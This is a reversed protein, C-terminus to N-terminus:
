SSPSAPIPFSADRRAGRPLRAAGSGAGRVRLVGRGAAFVGDRPATLARTRRRRRAAARARPRRGRGGGSVWDRMLQSGRRVTLIRLRALVQGSAFAEDRARPADGVSAARQAQGAGRAARAARAAARLAAHLADLVRAQPQHSAADCGFQALAVRAHSPTARARATAVRRAGGPGVKALTTAGDHERRVSLTFRTIEAAQEAYRKTSINSLAHNAGITFRAKVLARAPPLLSM